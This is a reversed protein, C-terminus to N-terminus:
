NGCFHGPSAHSWFWMVGSGCPELVAHSWFRMAGSSGALRTELGGGLKGDNASLLHCFAPSFGPFLALYVENCLICCYLEYTLFYKVQDQSSKTIGHQDASNVESGQTTIRKTQPSHTNNKRVRWGVPKNTAAAFFATGTTPSSATATCSPLMALYVAVLNPSSRDATVLTLSLSCM